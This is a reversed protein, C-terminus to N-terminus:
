IDPFKINTVNQKIETTIDKVREFIYRGLMDRETKALDFSVVVFHHDGNTQYKVISTKSNIRDQTKSGQILKNKQVPFSASISLSSLSLDIEAGVFSFAISKISLDKVNAFYSKNDVFIYMKFDNCPEVRIESRQYSYKDFSILNALRIAALNEIGIVDAKISRGLLDCDLIISKQNQAVYCQVEDASIVVEGDLVFSVVGDNKIPIGKYTNYCHLPAQTIKIADFQSMLDMKDFFNKRNNREDLEIQIHENIVDKLKAVTIPKQMFDSVGAEVCGLLRDYDCYSSIVILLVDPKIKKIEQMMKIGDLNPMVLDTIVVDFLPNNKFKELGEMGDYAVEIKEFILEFFRKSFERVIKSDEVYLVSLNYKTYADM